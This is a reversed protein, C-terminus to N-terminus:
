PTTNESSTGADSGGQGPPAASPSCPASNGGSLEACLGTYVEKLPLHHKRALRRCEEYEPLCRKSGSPDIVMKVQVPGFRGSDRIVAQRELVARSVRHYRVGISTSESLIVRILPNVREESCIVELCTGPRNKKMQVPFFAVDLAGADFLCEMLYGFLEPTMDDVTAQIVWATTKRIATGDELPDCGLVVRLLNPLGDPSRRKGAGYGTNELTMDPMSGFADALTAIIAAGTPTVLEMEKEGATVPVGKLISLTAPAPVPMTGHSCTVRGRGLPVRSAAVQDIGLYHICLFSGVIDVVADVGGVEHFHVHELDTGHIGSEALAIRKFAELSRNKVPEPLDASLILERIDRYNRAHSRNERDHVTVDVARIGNHSSTRCTLLPGTLGLSTLNDELWEVPVGLDMLAGLTMDGSIGSFLDFYAIRM